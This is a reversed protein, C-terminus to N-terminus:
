FNLWDFIFNFTNNSEVPDYLLSHQYDIPYNATYSWENCRMVRENAMIIGKIAGYKKIADFGYRSCSPYFNCESGTKGSLFLQYLRILGLATIKGFSTEDALAQNLQEPGYRDEKPKDEWECEWSATAISAILFFVVVFIIKKM